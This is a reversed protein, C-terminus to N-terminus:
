VTHLFKAPEIFITIEKYLNKALEQAEAKSLSFTYQKNDEEDSLEICGEANYLGGVWLLKGTLKKSMVNIEM